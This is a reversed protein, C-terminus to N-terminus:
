AGADGRVRREQRRVEGVPLGHESATRAVHALLGALHERLLPQEAAHPAAEEFGLRVLEDFGRTRLELRPVGDDGARLPCAPSARALRVLLDALAGLANHATTPDNLSPSLARLAVDALQRLPFAPDQALSRESAVAFAGGAAGALEERAGPVRAWVEAVPQGSVVWAGVPVIERVFGDARTAAALLASRDVHALFGAEGARVVAPPGATRRRADDAAEPGTAPRGTRKPEADEAATRGEQAIRTILTSAQLSTVTHQIFAVFLAFAALAWGMAVALALQPLAEVEPALQTLLVLAYVAVGILVALVAQNLRDGQFTRLVRPGLQQSALQLAVVVISFSLGAVSVSVTAITSLVSRASEADGFGFLGVDVRLWRDLRPLGFGAAVAVVIGVAPLLWFRLRRRERRARGM